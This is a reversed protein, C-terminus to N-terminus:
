QSVEGGCRCQEIYIDLESLKYRIARGNIKYWAPGRSEMRWVSLTQQTIGLYEAAFAATVLRDPPSQSQAM